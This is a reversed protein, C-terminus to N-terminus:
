QVQTKETSTTTTAMPAFETPEGEVTCGSFAAWEQITHEGGLVAGDPRIWTPYSQIKKDICVQLQGKGDPTSCEVYPLYKASIGFLAKTRQCHPCWFAGYFIVGREKICQALKDHQGPRASVFFSSGMALVIVAIIIGWFVLVGKKM